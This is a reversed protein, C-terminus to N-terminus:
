ELRTKIWSWSVPLAPVADAPVIQLQVIMDELVAGQSTQAHAGVLFGGVVRYTAPIVPIAPNGWHLGDWATTYTKCQGPAVSTAVGFFFVGQPWFFPTAFECGEPEYYFQCTDPLVSWSHIASIQWPNPIIVTTPGSNYVSLYFQVPDGVACQFRDIGMILQLDGATSSTSNVYQSPVPCQASVSRSASLLATVVLFGLLRTRGTVIKM